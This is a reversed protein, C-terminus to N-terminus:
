SRNGQARCLESRFGCPPRDPPMVIEDTLIEIDKSCQLGYESNYLRMTVDYSTCFYLLTYVVKNVM